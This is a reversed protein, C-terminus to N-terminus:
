SGEYLSLPTVRLLITRKFPLNGTGKEEIEGGALMPSALMNV